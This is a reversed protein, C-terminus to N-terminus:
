LVESIGHNGRYIGCQVPKLFYLATWVDISGRAEINGPSIITPEIAKTRDFIDSYRTKNEAKEGSITQGIIVQRIHCNKYTRIFQSM